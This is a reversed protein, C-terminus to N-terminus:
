RTAKMLKKNLFQEVEKSLEDKMSGFNMSKKLTVVEHKKM